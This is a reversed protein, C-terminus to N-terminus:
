RCPLHVASYAVWPVVAGGAAVGESVRSPFGSSGLPGGAGSGGPRRWLCPAAWGARVVPRLRGGPFPAEGRASPPGRPGAPDLCAPGGGCAQAPGPGRRAPTAATGPHWRLALRRYARKLEEEAADRKVGLVEYHCKM